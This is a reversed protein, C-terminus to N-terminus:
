QGVIGVLFHNGLQGQALPYLVHIGVHRVSRGPGIWDSLGVPLEDLFLTRYAAFRRQSDQPVRAAPLSFHRSAITKQAEWDLGATRKFPHVRQLAALVIDDPSRGPLLRPRLDPFLVLTLGYAGGPYAASRAFSVGLCWSLAAQDRLKLLVKPLGADIETFGLTVIAAAGWSDPPEALAAGHLFALSALRCHNRVKSFDRSNLMIRDKFRVAIRQDMEAEVDVPALPEYLRAFEQTAYYTEGSRVIGVGLHTFERDLINLRHGPSDMLAEHFFRLVFTISRAVNEGVKSFHLGAAAARRELPPYGAFDHGLRGAAIMKGSHERAMARLNPDGALGPLGHRGREENALALLKVEMQELSLGLDEVQFDERLPTAQLLFALNALLLLLIPRKM